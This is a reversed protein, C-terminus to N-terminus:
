SSFTQQKAKRRDTPQEESYNVGDYMTLVMFKKDETIELYGSDAVTVNENVISRNRGSHDYILLDYLMNNKNNKRGVKISYGDIENNFIGPQLVM